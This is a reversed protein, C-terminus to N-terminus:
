EPNQCFNPHGARDDSHLVLNGCNRHRLSLGGESVSGELVPTNLHVDNDDSYKQYSGGERIEDFRPGVETLCEVALLVSQRPLYSLAHSLLREKKKIAGFDILKRM